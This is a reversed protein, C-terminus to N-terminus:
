QTPKTIVKVHSAAEVKQAQSKQWEGCFDTPKTHPWRATDGFTAREQETQEYPLLPARFRCQQHEAFWHRCAQCTESPNHNSM